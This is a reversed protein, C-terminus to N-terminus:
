ASPEQTHEDAGFGGNTPAHTQRLTRGNGLYM